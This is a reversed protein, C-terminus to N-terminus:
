TENSREMSRDKCNREGACSARFSRGFHARFALVPATTAIVLGSLIGLAGPSGLAASREPQDQSSNAEVVLDDLIIEEWCEVPRIASDSDFHWRGVRSEYETAVFSLLLPSTDPGSEGLEQLERRSIVEFAKRSSTSGLTFQCLHLRHDKKHSEPLTIPSDSRRSSSSGVISIRAISTPEPPQTALGSPSLVKDSAAISYPLPASSTTETGFSLTPIVVLSSEKMPFLDGTASLPIERPTPGNRPPLPYDDVEGPANPDFKGPGATDAAVRGPRQIAGFLGHKEHDIGATFFLTDTAGGEHGNGFALGWLNPIVIPTGDRNTLDGLYNGSTPDYANIRGDGANGVLVAGGAPGFDNPAQALGWPSDLAGASAFRRLLNGALDYADVFGHGAGAVDDEGGDERRAYTVFIEHDMSQVNFPAYGSPLGPDRFANPRSVLRFDQDFVDVTGATFNAAYLFSQGSGDTALALGKYVADSSSNDVAVIAHTPDVGSAWGSIIGDEGAFLFRSPATVGNKTVEFGPGSNFVTGTPGGASGHSTTTEVVLPVEDGRGNLLNSVGAGNDSFWFPGTPSFSIGWPNIL